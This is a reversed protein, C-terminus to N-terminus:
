LDKATEGLVLLLANRTLHPDAGGNTREMVKAVLFHLVGKGGERYHQAERHHAAVVARALCGIEIPDKVYRGFLSGAAGEPRGILVVGEEGSLTPESLEVLISKASAEPVASLADSEGLTHTFIPEFRIGGRPGWEAQIRDLAGSSAGLAVGGEDYVKFIGFTVQGM